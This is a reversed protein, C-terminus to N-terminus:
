FLKTTVTLKKLLRAREQMEFETRGLTENCCLIIHQQMKWSQLLSVFRKPISQCLM